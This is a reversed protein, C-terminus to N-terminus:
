GGVQEGKTEGVERENCWKCMAEIMDEQSKDSLYRKLFDDTLGFRKGMELMVLDMAMLWWGGNGPHQRELENRILHGGWTYYGRALRWLHEPSQESPPIRPNVPDEGEFAQYSNPGDKLLRPDNELSDAM